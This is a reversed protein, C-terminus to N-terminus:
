NSETERGEGEQGNSQLTRSISYNADCQWRATKHQKLLILDRHRSAKIKCSSWPNSARKLRRINKTLVIKASTLAILWVARNASAKWRTKRLLLCRWGSAWPASPRITVISESASNATPEPRFDQKGQTNPFTIKLSVETNSTYTKPLSPFLQQLRLQGCLHIVQPLSLPISAQSVWCICITALHETLAHLLRCLVSMDRNINNTETACWRTGKCKAPM